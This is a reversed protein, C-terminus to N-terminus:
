PHYPTRIYRRSHRSINAHAFALPQPRKWPRRFQTSHESFSVIVKRIAQQSTPTPGGSAMQHQGWAQEHHSTNVMKASKHNRPFGLQFFQNATAKNLLAYKTSYSCSSSKLVRLGINQAAPHWGKKSKTVPKSSHPKVSLHIVIETPMQSM